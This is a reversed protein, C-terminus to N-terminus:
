PVRKWVERAVGNNSTLNLVDGEIRMETLFEEGRERDDSAEEAFLRIRDGTVSYTGSESARRTRKIGLRSIHASFNVDYRGDGFNVLAEMEDPSSYTRNNSTYTYSQLTWSGRVTTKLRQEPTDQAGLMGRFLVPVLAGELCRVSLCQLFSRRNQTM